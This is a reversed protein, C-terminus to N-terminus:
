PARLGDIIQKVAAAHGAQDSARSIVQVVSLRDGSGAIFTTSLTNGGGMTANSDVQRIGLGKITLRSEGVQKFDPLAAEQQHVFGTVAGDLFTDDNDNTKIGDKLASEVEIIVRKQAENSYLTGISGAMDTKKDGAQMPNAIYGSPLAFKFKGGLTSVAQASSQTAAPKSHQKSAAIAPLSGLLGVIVLAPILVKRNFFSM